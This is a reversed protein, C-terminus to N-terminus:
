DPSSLKKAARKARQRKARNPDRYNKAVARCNALTYRPDLARAIEFFLIECREANESPGNPWDYRLVFSGGAAKYWRELEGAVSYLLATPAGGSRSKGPPKRGRKYRQDWYEHWSPWEDNAAADEGIDRPPRGEGTIPDFPKDSYRTEYEDREVLFTELIDVLSLALSTANLPALKRQDPPRKNAREVELALKAATETAWPLFTRTFTNRDEELAEVLGAEVAARTFAPM